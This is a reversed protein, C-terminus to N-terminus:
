KSSLDVVCRCNVNNEASEFMGPMTAHDGDYTYFEENLGVEVGDLYFHTDRVKEDEMTVWKKSVKMGNKSEQNASEIEGSSFLRHYETDALRKLSEIDKSQTYENIREALNKDGQKENILSNVTNMDVKTNMTNLTVDKDVLQQEGTLVGLLYADLLDDNFSEKIVKKRESLSTNNEEFEEFKSTIMKNLEDFGKQYKEIVDKDM